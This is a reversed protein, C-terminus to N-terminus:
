RKRDARMGFLAGTQHTGNEMKRLRMTIWRATTLAADPRSLACVHRHMQHWAHAGKAFLGEIGLLVAENTPCHAGCGNQLLLRANGEERGPLIRTLLMPTKAALAEHVAAGGASGLLLHNRRLLQPMNNVWGLVNLNKQMRAALTELTTKLEAHKETTVTLEIGGRRLLSEVLPVIRGPETGARLLVRPTITGCPDPRAEGQASYKTSVPFGGVFLRERGVSADRLVNATDENPVLFTDANCKYWLPTLALSDTVLVLPLFSTHGAERAAAQLLHAYAPFACVVAQPRHQKLATALERKLPRLLALLHTTFPFRAFATELGSLLWPHRNALKAHTARSRQYHAGFAPAFLDLVEARVEGLLDFGEKLGRAATNHREGYGATLILVSRM